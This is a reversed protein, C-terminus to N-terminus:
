GPLNMKKLFEKFRPDNALSKFLHEGMLYVLLSDKQKYARDLWQLANDHDGLYAYTMAISYASDDSHKAILAKFAENSEATRGAAQLVIPLMVLKDQEDQDQQLIALAADKKGQALLIKSLQSPAWVFHPSLQLAKRYAAEADVFRGAGYLADGLNAFQFPNLPDRALASRMQKDADNWRGLTASLMGAYMLALPEAADLSLALRGEAESAAWDWDLTRYIYQLATHAQALNPSLHLARRALQRAHEYGENPPSLGGDTEVIVATALASWGLGFNPDLKIAQELYRDAAVVSARSNQSGASMGRLYLQYAELDQTGGAVRNLPGGMLGIQLAQVVANAIEDQVKFIDRLERDYTQSWMHFGTDARILEATVRLHNGSKRVSGELVYAVSLEKAIEPVQTPKGKFYFSSTRAPVKLEPVKVLLDIIEEAMGDSFYEQDRKESMDLFPLVAVSKESIAAYTPPVDIPQPAVSVAAHEMKARNSQWVAALAVAVVALGAALFIRNRHSKSSKESARSASTGPNTIHQPGPPPNEPERIAAVLSALAADMGGARADIWHSESLFYELAASLPADDIRLAIVSRHKSSAREIEKGVHSSAVSNASLVLILAKSETIARVIAEAYLAGARVDRPAIWCRIGRGELTAVICNAVAVDASAYSVFIVGSHAENNANPAEIGAGVMGTPQYVKEL